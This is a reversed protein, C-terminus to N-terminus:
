NAVPPIGTIPEPDLVGNRVVRLAGARETILIDGNPLWALAWPRALGKIPVVRFRQGFKNFEQPTDPLPGDGSSMGPVRAPPKEAPQQASNESLLVVLTVMVVTAFSRRVFRPNTM